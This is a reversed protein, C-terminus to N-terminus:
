ESTNPFILIPGRWLHFQDLKLIGSRLDLCLALAWGSIDSVSRVRLRALCSRSCGTVTHVFSDTNIQRKVPPSSGAGRCVLANDYFFLTCVHTFLHDEATHSVVM